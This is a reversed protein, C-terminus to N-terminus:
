RRGKWQMLFQRILAASFRPMSDKASAEDSSDKGFTTEIKRILELRQPENLKLIGAPQDQVLAQMSVAVTQGLTEWMKQFRAALDSAWKLDVGTKGTMADQIKEIRENHLGAPVLYISELVMSPAQLMENDSEAFPRIVTAACALDDKALKAATLQTTIQEIVEEFSRVPKDPVDRQLSLEAQSLSDVLAVAWMNADRKDPRTNTPLCAAFSDNAAFAAM